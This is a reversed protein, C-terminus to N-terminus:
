RAQVETAMLSDLRARALRQQTYDFRPNIRLAAALFAIAQQHHGLASEIMGAHYYLLPDRTGLQLAARLNEAAEMPRGLKYLSWSVIDYGYIDKRTALEAVAKCYVESIRRDHDLLFLSWARHYAGPQGRVAIEMTRLNEEAAASDGKALFADGMIGLTAPDLKIAIAREGYAIAQDPDGVLLSLRALGGLIRYDGPEIKLGREFEHRARRFRGNRLELDGLRYHFWAIQETPLDVRTDAAAVAARLIHFAEGTHGNLEEWRALRPAISLTSRFRYLSDFAQRATEYEGLELRVEALLALYQPVGPDYAVARIAVSEAEAFRHEAMLTSALTVYTRANRNIRLSLSRRAYEEARLYDADNGTERARQLHLAALMGLSIASGPDIALARSWASIELNHRELERPAAINSVEGAHKLEAARVIRNGTWACLIASAVVGLVTLPRHIRMAIGPTMRPGAVTWSHARGTM